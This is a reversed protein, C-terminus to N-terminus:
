SFLHIIVVGTVIIATAGLKQILTFKDIKEHFIKPRFKTIVTVSFFVLFAKVKVVASALSVPGRSIASAFAFYGFAGILGLAILHKMGRIEKGRIEEKEKLLFLISTFIGGIGMWLLCSMMAENNTAFKFVVDRSAYFFAAIGTLLFGKKSKMGKLSEIPNELSILIAGGVTLAIGLYVPSAFREGLFLFGLIVIFVTTLSLTPVFRSVEEKQMGSYYFYSAVRYLSGALFSALLIAAPIFIEASFISVAAIFSSASIGFIGAALAPSEIEKDIVFKDILDVCTWFVAALLAFFLWVM